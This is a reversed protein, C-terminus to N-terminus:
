GGLGFRAKYKLEGYQPDDIIISYTSPVGIVVDRKGKFLPRLGRAAGKPRVTVSSATEDVFEFGTEHVEILSDGETRYIVWRLKGSASKKFRLADARFTKKQKAICTSLEQPDDGATESCKEQFSQKIDSHQFDLMFVVGTATLIDSPPTSPEASPPEPEAPPEDAETPEGTDSSAEGDAAETEPPQAEATPPEPEPPKASGADAPTSPPVPEAPPPPAGGACSLALAAVHAAALPLWPSSM